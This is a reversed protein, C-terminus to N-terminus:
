IKKKEAETGEGKYSKCLMGQSGSIRRSAQNRKELLIRISGTKTTRLEGDKVNHERNSDIWNRDKCKKSKCKKSM